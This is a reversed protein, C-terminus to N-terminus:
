GWGRRRRGQRGAGQWRRGQRKWRQGGEGSGGGGRAVAAKAAEAKAGRGRGRGRGKGGGGRGSGGKGGEGKGAGAGQWRRGQRKRRQGRGGGGGGGGGKAQAGARRVQTDALSGSLEGLEQRASRAPDDVVTGDPNTPLPEIYRILSSTPLVNLEDDLLLCNACSALSLVMRENFRGVVDQAPLLSSPPPPPPLLPRSLLPHTRHPLSRHPYPPYSCSHQESRPLPRAGLFEPPTAELTPTLDLWGAPAVSAWM